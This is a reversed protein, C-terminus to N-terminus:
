DAKGKIKRHRLIMYECFMAAEQPVKDLFEEPVYLLGKVESYDVINVWPNNGYPLGNEKAFEEWDKGDYFLRTHLAEVSLGKKKKAMRTEKQQVIYEICGGSASDNAFCFFPTM